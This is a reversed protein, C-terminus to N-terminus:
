WTEVIVEGGAPQGALGPTTGNYGDGGAGAAGGPFGGNGGNGGPGTTCGGGGGGSSSTDIHISYQHLVTDTNTCTTVIAPSDNTIKICTEIPTTKITTPDVVVHILTYSSIPAHDHTSVIYCNIGVLILLIGLYFNKM